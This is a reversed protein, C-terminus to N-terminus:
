RGTLQLAQELADMSLAGPWATAFDKNGRVVVTTPTYRMERFGPTSPYLWKASHAPDILTRLTLGNKELFAKVVEPPEDTYGLVTLKAAGRTKQLKELVQIQATALPTWSHWFTLMVPGNLDAFRVAQGNQDPLTFDAPTIESPPATLSLTAQCRPEPSGLTEATQVAGPPPTFVFSEKALTINLSQEKWTLSAAVRGSWDRIHEFLVLHRDEDVGFEDTLGAAPGSGRLVVSHLSNGASQPATARRIVSLDAPYNAPDAYRDLVLRLTEPGRRGAPSRSYVGSEPWYM